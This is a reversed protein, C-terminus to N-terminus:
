MRWGKFMMTAKWQVRAKNKIEIKFQLFWIQVYYYLHPRFLILYVLHSTSCMALGWATSTSPIVGNWISFKVRMKKKFRMCNWGTMTERFPPEVPPGVERGPNTDVEPKNLTCEIGDDLNNIFINLLVPWVVLEESSWRVVLRVKSGNVM